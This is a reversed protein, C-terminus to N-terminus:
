KLVQIQHAKYEIQITRYIVMSLGFISFEAQKVKGTTFSERVCPTKGDLGLWEAAGFIEARTM